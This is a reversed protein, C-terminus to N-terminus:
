TSIFRGRSSALTTTLWRIRWWTCPSNNSRCLSIKSNPVGLRRVDFSWSVEDSLSPHCIHSPWDPAMWGDQRKKKNNISHHVQHFCDATSFLMLPSKLTMIFILCWWHKQRKRWLFTLQFTFLALLADKRRCLCFLWLLSSYVFGYFHWWCLRMDEKSIRNRQRLTLM